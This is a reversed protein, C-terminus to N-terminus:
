KGQNVYSEFIRAINQSRCFEEVVQTIWLNKDAENLDEIVDVEMYINTLHKSYQVWKAMWNDEDWVDVDDEHFLIHSLIEHIVQPFVLSMFAHDTRVIDQINIELELSDNVVLEPM